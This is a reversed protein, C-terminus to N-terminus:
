KNGLKCKCPFISVQLNQEMCICFCEKQPVFFGLSKNGQLINTLKVNPGLYQNDESTISNHRLLGLTLQFHMQSPHIQLGHLLTRGVQPQQQTSVGSSAVIVM